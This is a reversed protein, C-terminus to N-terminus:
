WQRLGQPSVYSLTQLQVCKLQQHDESSM